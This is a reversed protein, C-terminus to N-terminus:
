RHEEHPIPGYTGRSTWEIWLRQPLRRAKGRFWDLAQALRSRPPPRYNLAGQQEALEGGRDGHSFIPYHYPVIDRHTAFFDRWPDAVHLAPRHHELLAEAARASVFYSSTGWFPRNPDVRYLQRRRDWWGWWYLGSHGRIKGTFHVFDVASRTTPAPAGGARDPTGGGDPAGGARRVVEVARAVNAPDLEMDDEFILAGRGRAVIQEYVSIHALTCGFQTPAFPRGWQRYSRAMQEFYEATSWEMGMVPPIRTVAMGLDAGRTPDATIVYLDM